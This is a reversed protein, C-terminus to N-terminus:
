LDPRLDRGENEVHVAPPQVAYRKEMSALFERAKIEFTFDSVKDFPWGVSKLWEVAESYAQPHEQSYNLDLLYLACSRLACAKQAESMQDYARCCEYALFLRAPKIDFESDWHQVKAVESYFSAPCSNFGFISKKAM